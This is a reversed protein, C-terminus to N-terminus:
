AIAAEVADGSVVDAAVFLGKDAFSEAVRPGPSNPLDLVVVRAGGAAFERATAEGLGSGGGTIVAVADKLKM